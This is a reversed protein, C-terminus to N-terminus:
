NPVSSVFSDRITASITGDISGHEWGDLVDVGCPTQQLGATDDLVGAVLKKRCAKLSSFM